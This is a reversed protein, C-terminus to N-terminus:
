SAFTLFTNKCKIKYANKSMNLWDLKIKGNIEHFRNCLINLGVKLINTKVIKFETQRSMIIQQFNMGIWETESISENFTRYLLLSLRYRGFMEPTARNRRKHLEM